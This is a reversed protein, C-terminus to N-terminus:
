VYVTCVYLVVSAVYWRYVDCAIGGNVTGRQAIMGRVGVMGAFVRGSEWESDGRGGPWSPMVAQPLKASAASPDRRNTRPQGPDDGEIGREERGPVSFFIAQHHRDASIVQM